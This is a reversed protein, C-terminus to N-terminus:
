WDILDWHYLRAFNVTRWLKSTAIGRGPWKWSCLQVITARSLGSLAVSVAYWSLLMDMINYHSEKWQSIRIMNNDWNGNVKWYVWFLIGRKMAYSIVIRTSIPITKMVMQSINWPLIDKFVTNRSSSTFKTSLIWTPISKYIGWRLYWTLGWEYRHNEAAQVAAMTWLFWKKQKYWCFLDESNLTFNLSALLWQLVTRSVVLSAYAVLVFSDMVEWFCPERSNQCIALLTRLLPLDAIGGRNLM